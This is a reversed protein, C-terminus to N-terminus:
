LTVVEIPQVNDTMWSGDFKNGHQRSLGFRFGITKGTSSVLIVDIEAKDGEVNYKELVVSRHNLLTGYVQNKVMLKFRLLPGTLRKNEPSAFAFTVKIGNDPEPTDNIQLATMIITVVDKPSLSPHPATRSLDGASSPAIPVLLFIVAFIFRKM